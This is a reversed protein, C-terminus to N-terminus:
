FPYRLTQFSFSRYISIRIPEYSVTSQTSLTVQEKAISPDRIM